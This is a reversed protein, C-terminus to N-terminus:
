DKTDHSINLGRERVFPLVELIDKRDRWTGTLVVPTDRDLGRVVEPRDLYIADRHPNLRNRRCYDRYQQYTGAVVLTRM